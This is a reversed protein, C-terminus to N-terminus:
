RCEVGPRLERGLDVGEFHAVMQDDHEAGVTLPEEGGCARGRSDPVREVAAGTVGDSIWHVPISDAAKLASPRRTSRVPESRETRTQSAVVPSGIVGTTRAGNEPNLSERANNRSPSPATTTTPLTFRIIM